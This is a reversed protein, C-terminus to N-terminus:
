FTIKIGGVIQAGLVKYGKFIQYNTNLLNNGLAFISFNKHIKYEASLNIDAFGGIRDDPNQINFYINPNIGSNTVQFSNTTKDSVFYGKFGLLLKQNLMSYKATIQANLLPKNYINQENELKYQAYKIEGGLSLNQLPFYELSGKVESINGNDYEASFTNAYNYASRNTNGPEDFIGNASFFLINRAKTFGGSFDYKLIQEVDGKVGIYFHYQTETPLIEQNPLLYPNEQLMEAYSNIQLGGDVGTYFKFGKDTAIQLEVKPFWYFKSNKTDEPLLLYNNSTNLISFDSGLQLYSEGKFFTLKPTAQGKFVSSSNKSLIDFDSKLTEVGVGLDGNLTFEENLKISHKSLNALLSVGSEKSNYKDSLFSSKVRVDNLIENSYFDYYGNINIQNAKQKLDIESTPDMAYIGYFNYDNGLYEAKLNFKGKDGYNNLFVGLDASSQASSWDYLKKLGTTSNFHLDAGVETKNELTTSINADALIKGFNGMGLRLYNNQYESSLKPSIDVGQIKSTKFDSAAPIDTIEYKLSLSDEMKKQKPPYNKVTEVTAKKKEIRKVEPVRKKDLILREEKIQSSAFNSIGLFIVTYIFLNKNMFM